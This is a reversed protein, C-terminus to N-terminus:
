PSRRARKRAPGLRVGSRAPPDSAIMSDASSEDVPDEYRAPQEEDPPLEQPGRRRAGDPPPAEKRPPRPRREEGPKTKM